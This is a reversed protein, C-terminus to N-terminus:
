RKMTEDIVEILRKGIQYSKVAEDFTMNFTGAHVLQHRCEILNNYTTVLDVGDSVMVEITKADKKKVLKKSYKDGYPKVLEDKVYKYVIRGNLKSYSSKVFTGFVKHKGKAFEEFIDKIALEYATVAKVAVLGAWSSLVLSDTGQQVMTQLQSILLDVIAFRSTYAM